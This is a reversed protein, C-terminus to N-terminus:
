EAVLKCIERESISEGTVNYAMNNQGKGLLLAAAVRASDDKAIFTARGEGANSRWRNGTSLVMKPYGLLYNENM